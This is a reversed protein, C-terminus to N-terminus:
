AELINLPHIRGDVGDVLRSGTPSLAGKNHQASRSVVEAQERERAVRESQAAHDITTSM